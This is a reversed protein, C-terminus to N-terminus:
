LALTVFSHETLRLRDKNAEDRAVYGRASDLRDAAAPAGAAAVWHAVGDVFLQARLQRRREALPARLHDAECNGRRQKRAIIDRAVHALAAHGKVEVITLGVPGAGGFERLAQWMQWGLHGWASSALTARAEGRLGIGDVVFSVDCYMEIPPIARRLVILASLLEAGATAAQAGRGEALQADCLSGDCHLPQGVIPEGPEGCCWRLCDLPGGSPPGWQLWPAPFLVREVLYKVVVNDKQPLLLAIERPLGLGRDQIAGCCLHRHWVDGVQNPCLECSDSPACRPNSDYKRANTWQGDVICSRLYGRQKSNLGPWSRAEQSAGRGSAAWRRLQGFNIGVDLWSADHQSLHKAQWHECSRGLLKKTLWPSADSVGRHFGDRAAWAGLSVAEWGVRRMSLLAGVPGRCDAWSGSAALAAAFVKDLAQRPLWQEWVARHLMRVPDCTAKFVPDCGGGITAFAAARSKGSPRIEVSKFALARAVNLDADSPARGALAYSVGLNGAAGVPRAKAA